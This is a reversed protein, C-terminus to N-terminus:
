DSPPGDPEQVPPEDAGESGGVEAMEAHVPGSEQGDGTDSAATREAGSQVDQLAEKMEAYRVSLLVFAETLWTRDANALIAEPLEGGSAEACAEATAEVEDFSITSRMNNSARRVGHCLNMLVAIQDTTLNKRMWDPGPFAPYRTGDSTKETASFCIRFIIQILKQDGLLDFDARAESDGAALKKVTAHAAVLAADEEAKTAVRIALKPIEKDGLGFFGSVDFDHFKRENEEIAAALASKLEDSM